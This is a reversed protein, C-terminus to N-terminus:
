CHTITAVEDMLLRHRGPWHGGTSQLLKVAAVRVWRHHSSSHSGSVLLVM